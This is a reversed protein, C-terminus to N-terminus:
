LLLHLPFTRFCHSGSHDLTIRPLRKGLTNKLSFGMGSKLRGLLFECSPKAYCLIGKYKHFAKSDGM